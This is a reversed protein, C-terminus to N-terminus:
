MGDRLFVPGVERGPLVEVGRSSARIEGNVAVSVTYRGPRIGPLRFWGDHASFQYRRERNEGGTELEGEPVLVVSFSGAQGEPSYNGRISGLPEVVLRLDSRGVVCSRDTSSSYQEGGATIECPTGEPYRLGSFRFTGDAGTLATFRTGGHLKGGGGSGSGEGPLELSVSCLRAPEGSSHVVRGSVEGAGAEVVVELRDAAAAEGVAVDALMGVGRTNTVVVIDYKGPPVGEFRFGGTSITRLSRARSSGRELLRVEAGRVPAGGPDRVIGEVAHGMSLRAVYTEGELEAVPVEKRLPLYAEHAVELLVTADSAAPLGELHARGDVDTRATPRGIPLGETRQLLRVRAGVVPQMGEDTVAVTFGTDEPLELVVPRPAPIEVLASTRRYGQKAASVRWRGDRLGSILFTGDEATTEVAHDLSDGLVLSLRVVAEALPRGERDLITGALVEGPRLHVVVEVASEAGDAGASPPAPIRVRRVDPLYDAHRTQLTYTGPPVARIEFSGNADTSASQSRLVGSGRLLTDVREQLLPRDTAEDLVRVLIAAGSEGASNGPANEPATSEARERTAVPPPIGRTTSSGQRAREKLMGTDLGQLHNKEGYPKSGTETGPQQLRYLAAAALLLCIGGLAAWRLLPGRESRSTSPRM